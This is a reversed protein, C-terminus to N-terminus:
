ENLSFYTKLDFSAVCSTTIVSMTSWSSKHTGLIYIREIEYLKNAAYIFFCKLSHLMLPSLACELSQQLLEIFASYCGYWRLICWNWIPLVISSLMHCAYSQFNLFFVSNLLIMCPISARWEDLFLSSIFDYFGFGILTYYDFGNVNMPYCHSM